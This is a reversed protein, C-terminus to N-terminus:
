VHSYIEKEKLEFLTVNDKIVQPIKVPRKNQDIFVHTTFGWALVKSKEENLVQYHFKMLSIRLQCVSTRVYLLQDYFSPAFYKCYADAVPLFINKEEFETYPLGLNRFLEARASEFWIFYNAYYSVKMQDTEAYRVRIEHDIFNM